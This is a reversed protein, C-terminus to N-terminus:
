RCRRSRRSLRRVGWEARREPLRQRGRGRSIKRARGGERSVRRLKGDDPCTYVLSASDPTWAFGAGAGGTFAPTCPADATVLLPIGGGTPVVWIDARQDYDQVYAVYRGDPSVLPSGNIRMQAIINASFDTEWTGPRQVTTRELLSTM